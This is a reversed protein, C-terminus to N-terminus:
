FKEHGPTSCSVTGTQPDYNYPQGSVPCTSPVTSSDLAAPYQSDEAVKMQILQRQQNLLSACEVGHAKELAEGPTSNTTGMGGRKGWVGFYLGALVAVIVVVVLLEILAFGRHRAM